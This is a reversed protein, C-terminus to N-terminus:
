KIIRYAREAKARSIYNFHWWESTIPSFGAKMMVQRLVVRNNIQKESLLGQALLEKEKRPYAMYGFFDYKTGMDLTTDAAIDYITLDIACGYNHISGKRPNAVYAERTKPPISDLKNWLIKQVSHPRVGDYVLLTYTANEQKLLQNAEKLKEAVDPQLYANTLTGYVDEGFFNDTTSYKLEVLITSDVDKINVLGQKILTKELKGMPLLSTSVVASDSLINPLNAEATKSKCSLVAYGVFLLSVVVNYRMTINFDYFDFKPM